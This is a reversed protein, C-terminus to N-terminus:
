TSGDAACISGITGTASFLPVSPAGDFTLCFPLDIALQPEKAVRRGVLADARVTHAAEEFSPAKGELLAGLFQACTEDECRTEDRDFRGAPLLTVREPGLRKLYRAVATVNLFSAVVVRKAKAAAACLARSGNTTVLVPVRGSLEVDRALTPSNDLRDYGAPVSSLESFLLHRGPPLRPLDDVTAVVRVVAVGRHSLVAVTSTARLVDIVVAVDLPEDDLRAPSRFDVRM